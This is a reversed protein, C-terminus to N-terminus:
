LRQLYGIFALPFHMLFSIVPGHNRIPWSIFGLKLALGPISNSLVLFPGFFLLGFSLLTIGSGISSLFNWSHFSDPFFSNTEYNEQVESIYDTVLSLLSHGDYILRKEM